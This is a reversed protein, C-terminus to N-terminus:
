THRVIGHTLVQVTANDAIGGDPHCLTASISYSGKVDQYGLLADHTFNRGIDTMNMAFQTAVENGTIEPVDFLGQRAEISVPVTINVCRRGAALIPLGTLFLLSFLSM